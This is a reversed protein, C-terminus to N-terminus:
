VISDPHRGTRREEGHYLRSYSEYRASSILGRTVAEKVGCGEEHTHSCDPFKCLTVFPRFEIFYGEVEEPIVDWLQLERIGPTDVIWGGSDLKLLIARRTTHRGKGSESSVRKTELTQQSQLLNLLSSKGVGSQGVVVSERDKLLPRLRDIGVNETASTMVVDYGIRGYLGIVPAIEAPDLMDIKNICIIPRADGKEASILFRDILNPKLPPDVASVVILVCDINAVLVHEQKGSTRSLCSHRPNVREIVAQEAGAPSFLVNDGVVVANRQSRALTRVLRRVTCEYRAGDAAEVISTLGTAEVVRGSLCQSEDVAIVVEAQNDDSTEAIVTRHRTLKGKGSM